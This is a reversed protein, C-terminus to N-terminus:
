TAQGALTRAEIAMAEIPVIWSRSYFKQGGPFHTDYLRQRRSFVSLPARIVEKQLLAFLIFQFVLAIQYV